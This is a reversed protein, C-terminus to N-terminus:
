QKIMLFFLKEYVVLIGFEGFYSMEKTNKCAPIKEKVKNFSVTYMQFTSSPLGLGSFVCKLTRTAINDKSM